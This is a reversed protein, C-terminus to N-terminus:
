CMRTLVSEFIMVLCLGKVDPLPSEEQWDYNLHLELNNKGSSDHGLITFAPCTEM